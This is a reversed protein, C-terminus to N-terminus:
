TGLRRGFFIWWLWTTRPLPLGILSIPVVKCCATILGSHLVATCLLRYDTAPEVLFHQGSSRGVLTALLFPVLWFEALGECDEHHRLRSEFGCLGVGVLGQISRSRLLSYSCTFLFFIDFWYTLESEHSCTFLPFLAYILPYSWCQTSWINVLFIANESYRSLM